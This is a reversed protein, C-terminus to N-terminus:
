KKNEQYILGALFIVVVVGFIITMETSLPGLGDGRAKLEELQHKEQQNQNVTELDIKQSAESKNVM